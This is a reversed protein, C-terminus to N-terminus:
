VVSQPSPRWQPIGLNIVSYVLFVVAITSCIRLANKKQLNDRQSVGHFWLGILVIACWIVIGEGLIQILRAHDASVLTRASILLDTDLSLLYQIM